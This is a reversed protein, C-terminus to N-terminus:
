QQRDHPEERLHGNGNELAHLIQTYAFRKACSALAQGLPANQDSVRGIVESIPGADSRVLVDALDQRLKAPLM